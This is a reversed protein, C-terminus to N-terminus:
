SQIHADQVKDVRQISNETSFGNPYRLRLKAINQELIDTRDYGYNNALQTLLNVLGGLAESVYETSLPHGHGVHKKIHDALHGARAMLHITSANDSVQQGETLDLHCITAIEAVYWFVDGLELQQKTADPVEFAEHLEASEGCLGLGAIALLASQYETKQTSTRSALRQYDELLM